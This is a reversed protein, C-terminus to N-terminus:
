MNEVINPWDDVVNTSEIDPLWTADNPDDAFEEDLM